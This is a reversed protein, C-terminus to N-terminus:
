APQFKVWLCSHWATALFGCSAASTKKIEPDLDPYYNGIEQCIEAISHARGRAIPMIYCVSPKQLILWRPLPTQYHTGSPLLEQLLPNRFSLQLVVLYRLDKNLPLDESLDIV